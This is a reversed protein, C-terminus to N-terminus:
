NAFCLAGLRKMQELSQAFGMPKEMKGWCDSCYSQSTAFMVYYTKDTLNGCPCGRSLVRASAKSSMASTKPVAVTKPNMMNPVGPMGPGGKRYGGSSKVKPMHRQPMVNPKHKLAPQIVKNAASQPPGNMKLGAPIPTLQSSPVSKAKAASGIIDGNLEGNKTPASKPATSMTHTHSIIYAILLFLYIYTHSIHHIRASIRAIAYSRVKTREIEQV